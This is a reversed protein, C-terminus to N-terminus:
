FLYKDIAYFNLSSIIFANGMILTRIFGRINSTKSLLM